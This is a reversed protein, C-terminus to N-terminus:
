QMLCLLIDPLNFGLTLLIQQGPLIVSTGPFLIEKNVTPLKIYMYM